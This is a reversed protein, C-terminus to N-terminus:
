YATKKFAHERALAALEQEHQRTWWPYAAHSALFSQLKEESDVSPLMVLLHADEHAYHLVVFTPPPGPDFRALPM